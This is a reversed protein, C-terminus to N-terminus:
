YPTWVSFSVTHLMKLIRTKEFIAEHNEKSKQFDKYVFTLFSHYLDSAVTNRLWKEVRICLLIYVKCSERVHRHVHAVCVFVGSVFTELATKVREFQLTSQFM